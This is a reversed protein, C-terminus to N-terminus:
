HSEYDHVRRCMDEMHECVAAALRNWGRDYGAPPITGILEANGTVEAVRQLSTRLVAIEHALRRVEASDGRRLLALDSSEQGRTEWWQPIDAVAGRYILCSEGNGLHPELAIEVHQEKATYQWLNVAIKGGTSTQAEVTLDRGGLRTTEGRNGRILGRFASLRM